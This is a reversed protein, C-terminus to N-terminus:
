AWVTHGSWTLNRFSCGSRVCVSVGWPPSIVRTSPESLGQSWGHGDTELWSGPRTGSVRQGEAEEAATHPDSLCRSRQVTSSGQVRAM